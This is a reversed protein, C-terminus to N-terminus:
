LYNRNFYQISSQRDSSISHQISNLDYKLIDTNILKGDPNKSILKNLKDVLDSDKEILIIKKIKNIISKTMARDGPGIEVICDDQRPDIYKILKNIINQNLRFHQGLKKKYLM